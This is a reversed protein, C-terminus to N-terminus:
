VQIGRWWVSKAAFEIAAYLVLSILTIVIICGFVLDTRSSATGLMILNGLGRDSGVLEGIIAGIMALPMAV